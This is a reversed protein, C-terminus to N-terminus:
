EELGREALIAKIKTVLLDIAVQNEGGEPVIIDAYRKTPEVFQHYMPKVTTLYQDIINDLTRGRSILDRKIRRIIRIDDDTDVFVKIDMLDRLSEDELILIGELIIVDKPAVHEVKDSRNHDAYDYVPKEIAERNILQQLQAKLLPTDFALPHDYNIKKREDFPLDSHKYYADQELLLLSHGSFHDFIARSVSTKGSASGGTVGIVIPKQNAM